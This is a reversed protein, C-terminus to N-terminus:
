STKSPFVGDYELKEREKVNLLVVAALHLDEISMEDDELKDELREVILELCKKYNAM